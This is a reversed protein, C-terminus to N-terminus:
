SGPIQMLLLQGDERRQQYQLEAGTISVTYTLIQPHSRLM